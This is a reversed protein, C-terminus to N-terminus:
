DVPVHGRGFDAPHHGGQTVCHAAAHHRQDLRLQSGRRRRVRPDHEARDSALLLRERGVLVVREHEGLGVVTVPEGPQRM